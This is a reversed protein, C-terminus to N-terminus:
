IKCGGGNCDDEPEKEDEATKFNQYYMTKLGVKYAFAFEGVLVNLPVKGGPYKTYDLYQNTSISQDTFKQIIGLMKFYEINDIEWATTYYSSAHHFDPVIQRIKTLKDEKITLLERPPEVGPTSNSVRSSNSTPAHASLTSNRIGYKLLDARLGEWDEKLGVTVYEDVNKKYHDIAMLGDSYKTDSLWECPGQEKALQVSAKTLNFQIAESWEHILDRGEQTNYRVKNKALFHFVDSHGIAISRRAKTGREAWIYPYEQYDILIDLFRVLVESVIPIREKKLNGWNESALICIGIEGDGNDYLPSTPLIVEACLNSGYVPIKFSSHDNANDIFFPYNRGNSSRELTFKDIIKQASIKVKTLSKNNEYKIYASRFKDVDNYYEFLKPVDNLYFLTVDQGLKAREFLVPHFAVSHDMQRLRTEETGTNSKLELINALEIHFFPSYQTSSGGRKGSQTCSKTAAEYVKFFPVMGTHIIRNKDIGAGLGRIMNHLGIGSKRVTYGTIAKTANSITEIHDGTNILCCSAYQRMTTRIGNMIPTPLSIEFDSLMKYMELIYKKRDDKTYFVGTINNVTTTYLGFMYMPILMFVEQPTEIPTGFEDEILYKQILQEAGAQTFKDDKSYKIKSGFYEIEEPPYMELLKDDYYKNNINKMVQDLFPRPTFSGYVKKRLDQFMLRATVYQYNPNKLTILNRTSNVIIEQIKSTEIGDYFQLQAQIAIESVSVNSLGDCAYEIAEHIKEINLPYVSGDRKTVNIM